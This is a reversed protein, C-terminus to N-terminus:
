YSFYVCFDKTFQTTNYTCVHKDEPSGAMRLGAGYDNM